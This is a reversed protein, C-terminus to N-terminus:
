LGEALLPTQQGAGHGLIQGRHVPLLVVVRGKQLLKGDPALDHPDVVVLKVVNAALTM